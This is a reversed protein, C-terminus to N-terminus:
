PQSKEEGWCSWKKCSTGWFRSICLMLNGKTAQYWLQLWHWHWQEPRHPMQLPRAADVHRRRSWFTEELARNKFTKFDANFIKHLRYFTGVMLFPAEKRNKTNNLPLQYRSLFPAPVSYFSNVFYNSVQMQHRLVLECLHWFFNGVDRFFIKSYIDFKESLM